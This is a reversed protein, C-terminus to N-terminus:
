FDTPRTDRLQSPSAQPTIPSGPRFMLHQNLASAIETAKWDPWQGGFSFKRLGYQCGLQTPTWLIFSEFDDRALPSKDIIVADRTVWIRNPGRKAWFYALAAGATVLVLLAPERGYILALIGVAAVTFFFFKVGGSVGDGDFLAVTFGDDTSEFRCHPVGMEAQVYRSRAQSTRPKSRNYHRWLDVVFFLLWIISFAEAYFEGAPLLEGAPARRLGLWGYALFWAPIGLALFIVGTVVKPPSLWLLVLAVVSVFLAGITGLLVSLSNDTMGDGTETATPTATSSVPPAQLPQSPVTSGGEQPVQPLSPTSEVKPPQQIEAPKESGESPVVPPADPPLPKGQAAPPEIAQQSVAAPIAVLVIFILVTLKKMPLLGGNDRFTRASWPLAETKLCDLVGAVCGLVLYASRDRL